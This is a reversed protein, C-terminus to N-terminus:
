SRVGNKIREFGNVIQLFDVQNEPYGWRPIRYFPETSAPYRVSLSAYEPTTTVAGAFALSKVIAIDRDTFDEPDGNPYCFVESVSTTEARVRAWSTAIESSATADDVRSLIPHTVTHAGFTTGADGCRRVESWTMPAFRAPPREPLEVDLVEGLSALVRRREDDRVRKLSEMLDTAAASRQGPDTLSLRRACGDITIEASRRNTAQISATILDWWYWTTGDLPGTTLFVTAPCDFEAFLTAGVSAFDAYGDDVTFAIPSSERLDDERIRRVLEDLSVIERGQRRLHALSERVLAPEHGANGRDPDAFRHFMFITGVGRLAPRLIGTAWPRTVLRALLRKLAVPSGAAAIRGQSVPLEGRSAM